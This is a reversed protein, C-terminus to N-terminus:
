GNFFKRYTNGRQGMVDLRAFPYDFLGSQLVMVSASYGCKRQSQLSIKIPYISQPHHFSWSFIM